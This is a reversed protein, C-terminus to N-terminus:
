WIACQEGDVEARRGAANGIIYDLRRPFTGSEAASSSRCHGLWSWGPIAHPTM